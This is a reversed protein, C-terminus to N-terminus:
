FYVKTDIVLNHDSARYKTTAIQMGAGLLVYSKSTKSWPRLPALFLGPTLYSQVKGDHKGGFYYTTDAELQAWLRPRLHMEFASNWAMPRGMTKLGSSAPLTAGITSLAVFRGFGKGGALTIGRTSSIAGNSGQGSTWTGSGIATVSYNGHQANRSFLRYRTTLCFDGLGDTGKGSGHVAYNPMALDTEFRNTLLLSLGKGNGINWQSSGDPMRQRVFEERVFQGLMPSTMVLPTMWSPQVAKMEANRNHFDHLYNQASAPLVALLLATLACVTGLASTFAPACNEQRAHIPIPM